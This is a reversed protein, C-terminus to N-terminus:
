KFTLGPNFLLNKNEIYDKLEKISPRWGETLWKEKNGVAFHIACLQCCDYEKHCTSDELTKMPFKCLSCFLPTSKFNFPRIVMLKENSFIKIERFSDLKQFKPSSEDEM